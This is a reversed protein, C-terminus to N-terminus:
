TFVFYCLQVLVIMLWFFFFLVIPQIDEPLWFACEPLLPSFLDLVTTLIVPTLITQKPIPFICVFHVQHEM